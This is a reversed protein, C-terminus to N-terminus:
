LCSAGLEKAIIDLDERGRGLQCGKGIALRSKQEQGEQEWLLGLSIWADPYSPNTIVKQKWFVIEAKRKQPDLARLRSSEVKLQEKIFSDDSEVRGEVEKLKEEAKKFEGNELYCGAMKLQLNLNDKERFARWGILQCEGQSFIGLIFLLSLFSTIILWFRKAAM